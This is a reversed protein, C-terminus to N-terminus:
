LARLDFRLVTFFGHTSLLHEMCDLGKFHRQKQHLYLRKFLNAIRAQDFGAKETAQADRLTRLLGASRGETGTSGETTSSERRAPWFSMPLLVGDQGKESLRGRNTRLM